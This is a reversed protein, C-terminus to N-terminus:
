RLRHDPPRLISQVVIGTGPFQRYEVKLVVLFQEPGRVILLGPAHHQVANSVGPYLLRSEGIEQAPLPQCAM